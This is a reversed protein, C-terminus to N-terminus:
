SSVEFALFQFDHWRLRMRLAAMHHRPDTSTSTRNRILSVFVPRVGNRHPRSAILRTCLREVFLFASALELLEVAVRALRFNKPRVAPPFTHRSTACTMASIVLTTPREHPETALPISGARTGQASVVIESPAPSFSRSPQHARMFRLPGSPVTTARLFQRAVEHHAYWGWMAQNTSEFLRTTSHGPGGTRAGSM